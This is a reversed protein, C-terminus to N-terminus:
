AGTSSSTITTRYAEDAKSILTRISSETASGNFTANPTFGINTLDTKLTNIENTTIQNGVNMTTSVSTKHRRAVEFAILDKIDNIDSALITQNLDDVAKNYLNISATTGCGTNCGEGCGDKCGNTCTSSCTGQCTSSCTGQCTGQCGGSCSGSCSGYCGGTCGGSCDDGCSCSGWGFVSSSSCSDCMYACSTQRNCAM